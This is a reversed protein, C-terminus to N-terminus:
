SGEVGKIGTVFGNRGGMSSNWCYRGPIQSRFQNVFIPGKDLLSSSLIFSYKFTSWNSKTVLPVWANCIAIFANSSFPSIMVVGNENTAVVLLITQSPQLGTNASISGAVSLMSAPLISAAIVFFVQAIKAVCM